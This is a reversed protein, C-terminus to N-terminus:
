CTPGPLPAVLGRRGLGQYPGPAEAEAAAINLVGRRGDHHDPAHEHSHAPGVHHRRETGRDLCRGAHHALSSVLKIVLTRLARSVEM